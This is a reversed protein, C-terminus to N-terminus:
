SESIHVKRFVRHLFQPAWWNWKGLITMTSPVLLMRVLTADILVAIALFVGIEKIPLLDGFVFGIFVAIIIAAAATIVRGSRQLGLSVARDNSEGADWYEKMRAVLFVEYDMALGFGFALGCAVVFSTMGQTQPLGFLGQQFLWMTLGLSSVLSLGNTIVAKLPIIVSDTMLFLLIVIALVIVVVAYPMGEKLVNNFDLQVAASGGVMVEHTLDAARIQEVATTVEAGVPDDVDMYADLRTWGDTTEQATEVNTVGPLSSIFEKEAQTDEPSAQVLVTIESTRLAPYDAEIHSLARGPETNAPVYATTETRLGGNSLPIAFVILVALVCIMVLWPRRQVWQAVKSFFGHDTHTDGMVAFVKHMGPIKEVISPKALRIGAIQLLAPVLTIASLVALLVVMFGGIAIERLLSSKVFFLSIVAVAITIASFFVTRGATEVTRVLADSMLPRLKEVPPLEKGREPDYGLKELRRTIEERYRSVILLGYDISLALGIISVVNLVFVDTEMVFTMVWIGGLTTAIAALAGLIPMFAAVIGGFVLVMLVLAVPLGIAEGRLLDNRSADNITQVTLSKSTMDFKAGAQEAEGQYVRMRDIVQAESADMHDGASVHAVIAFSDTAALKQAAKDAEPAAQQSAEARGRAVVEEESPQGAAAAQAHAQVAATVQQRAINEPIGSAVLHATQEAITAELQARAQTQGEAYKQRAADEGQAAAQELIEQRLTDPSLASVGTIQNLDSVLQATTTGLAASEPIQSVIGIVNEGEGEALMDAVNQAETNEAFSDASGLRSFIGGQGFGSFASVLALAVLILWVTVVRWPHRVSLRGLSGFM